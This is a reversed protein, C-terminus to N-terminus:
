KPIISFSNTCNLQIISNISFEECRRYELPSSQDPILTVIPAYCGIILSESSITSSYEGLVTQTVNINQYGTTQTLSM